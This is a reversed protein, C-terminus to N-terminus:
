TGDPSYWTKGAGFLEPVSSLPELVDIHYEGWAEFTPLISHIRAIAIYVPRHKPDVTVKQWVTHHYNSPQFTDGEQFNADDALNLAYIDNANSPNEHFIPAVTYDVLVFENEGIDYFYGPEKDAGEQMNEVFEWYLEDDRQLARRSPYTAKFDYQTRPVAISANGYLSGM